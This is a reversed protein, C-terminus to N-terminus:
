VGSRLEEFVPQARAFSGELAALLEAAGTTQGQQGLLELELARERLEHAGVTGAIGKLAHAARELAPADNADVAAHLAAIREATEELFHSVIRGVRDPEGPRQLQRLMRLSSVDVSESM